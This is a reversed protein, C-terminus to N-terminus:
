NPGPYGPILGHFDHNGHFALTGRVRSEPNASLFEESSYAQLVRGGAWPSSWSDLYPLQEPVAAAAIGDSEQLENKHYSKLM